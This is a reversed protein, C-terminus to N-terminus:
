QVVEAFISSPGVCSDKKLKLRTPTKRKWFLAEM